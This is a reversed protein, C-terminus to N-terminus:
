ESRGVMLLVAVDDGVDLFVNGAYGSGKFARSLEEGAVWPGDTVAEALDDVVLPRVSAVAGTSDALEDAVGAELRVVAEIWYLDPGPARSSLVGGQWTASRPEGLADFRKTLPELEHRVEGREGRDREPMPRSM